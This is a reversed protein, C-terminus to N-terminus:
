TKAPTGMVFLVSLLRCCGTVPNFPQRCVHLLTPTHTATATSALPLHINYELTVPNELVGPACATTRDVYRAALGCIVPPAGRDDVVVDVVDEPGAKTVEDVLMTTVLEEILRTTIDVDDLPVVEFAVVEAITEVEEEMELVVPMLLVVLLLETASELVDGLLLVVLVIDVEEEDLLLVVDAGLVDALVVLWVKDLVLVAETVLVVLEVLVVAIATVVDVVLAMGREVVLVELVVVPLEDVAGELMSDVMLVEVVLM